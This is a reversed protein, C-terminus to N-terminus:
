HAVHTPAVDEEGQCKDTAPPLPPVSEAEQRQLMTQLPILTSTPLYYFLDFRRKPLANATMDPHPGLAVLRVFMGWVYAGCSYVDFQIPNDIQVLQYEAWFDAALHRDCEGHKPLPYPPFLRLLLHTPGECSVPGTCM